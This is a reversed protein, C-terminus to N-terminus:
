VSSHRKSTQGAMLMRLFTMMGVLIPRSASRACVKRAEVRWRILTTPRRESPSKPAEPVEFAPVLSDKESGDQTPESAVRLQASVAEM